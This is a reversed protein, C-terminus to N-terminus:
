RKLVDRLSKRALRFIPTAGKRLAGAKDADRGHLLQAGARLGQALSEDYPHWWFDRARSPEWAVLKVNVCEYFGFKSHSRGLGSEKVGGWSCSCVGHSYMHDNIWVMGSDIRSAIREGRGRDLTWVSAGLGFDSDNALRIAEEESDVTVIPIVPGFIERGMIRMDHTVGTLVTPAYFDRGEHGRIEVAGGCRMVAGNAVADDVLDKVIEYQEHSVMPGIETTWRMPDGVVLTEAARVVGEVFREAVERVVYVREIGSCTQSANAFGGWACGSIANPLNADACVIMPDKGGLELVCGKMRAGCAAGVLRGVEVSGTFFIKAASSEVLANGVEGAGQAVRVIGQPLGAREFVWRIREGILPTLESPKLVVGNGAMLAIAVEGFPISWPYNWPAIVGVVGLPEYAFHASKQRVFLPMSVKEDALIRQGGEAIWRLSDITPVLEMSFSENRPKGQERTLLESLEDLNDIIVQAARRMYRARDVLPLQAWFPQVEAVDDVIAQVDEPRTVPVAGVREGDIPSFSELLGTAPATADQSM